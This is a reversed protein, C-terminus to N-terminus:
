SVLGMVVLYNSINSIKVLSRPQHMTDLVSQSDKGM